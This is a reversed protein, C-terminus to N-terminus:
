EVNYYMQECPFINGFRNRDRNVPIQAIDVSSQPHKVLSDFELEFKKERDNHMRQVHAGFESLPIPRKRDMAACLM